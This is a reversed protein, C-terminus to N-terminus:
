EEEGEWQKETKMRTRDYHYYRPLGRRYPWGKSLFTDRIWRIKKQTEIYSDDGGYKAGKELLASIFDAAEPQEERYSELCASQKYQEEKFRQRNYEIEFDHWSILINVDVIQIFEELTFERWTNYKPNRKGDADVWDYRPHDYKFRPWRKKLDELRQKKKQDREAHIKRLEEPSKKQTM